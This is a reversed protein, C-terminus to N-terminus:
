GNLRFSQHLRCNGKIRDSWDDFCKQRKSSSSKRESKSGTAWPCIIQSSSFQGRSWRSFSPRKGSYRSNEGLFRSKRLLKVIFSLAVNFRKALQRQSIEEQEHIHKWQICMISFMSNLNTYRVLRLFAIYPFFSSQYSSKTDTASFFKNLSLSWM